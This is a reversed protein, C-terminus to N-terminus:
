TAALWTTADIDGATACSDVAVPFRRWARLLSRCLAALPLHAAVDPPPAPRWAPPADLASVATCFPTANRDAAMWHYRLRYEGEDTRRFYGIYRM